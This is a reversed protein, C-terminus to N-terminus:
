SNLVFRRLSVRRAKRPLCGLFSRVSATRSIRGVKSVLETEGRSVFQFLSNLGRAREDVVGAVADGQVLQERAAEPKGGGARRLSDVAVNCALRRCETITSVQGTKRQWDYNPLETKM